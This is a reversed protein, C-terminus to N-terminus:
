GEELRLGAADELGTLVLVRHVPGGTPARVTLTAGGRAQRAALEVLLRVGSSDLYAVAGLDLRLHSDAACERRIGDGVAAAGAADIDGTVVAIPRQPDAVDIAVSATGEAGPPHRRAPAPPVRPHRVMRITTGADGRDIEVEDMVARMIRIGQGRLGPDAAPPRWGGEDAVVVGIERGPGLRMELRMRQSGDDASGHEVANALAEGTALVVDQVGDAGVHAAALWDRVAARAVALNDPTAALVLKLPPPPLDRRAVLLAVDDSSVAGALHAVVRDAMVGAPEAREAAAAAGLRELGVELPEARREVLGDTFLLLSAGPPIEAQAETYGRDTVGLAPGRGDRLIRVGGDGDVVVPHPHGACAYTVRDSRPDIEVCAATSVEAGPIGAAFRSLHELVARPRFGALAYARMASRLQGMVSAAVTGRGVVDGVALFVRGGPMEVAEYWDGGAETHATATQYRAALELGAVDALRAPLLSRQLTTAVDVQAEYLRANELATGVRRGIEEAPLLESLLRGPHENFVLAIAGAARGHTAIPAVFLGSAVAGLEGATGPDIVGAAVLSAFPGGEDDDCGLLAGEDPDVTWPGGRRLVGEVAPETAGIATRMGGDAGPASIVCGDAWRPVLLKRLRDIRGALGLEADLTASVDALLDAHARRRAESEHLGARVLSMAAMRAFARLTNREEPGFARAGQFRLGLVGVIRQDLQLPLAALAGLGPWARPLDAAAPHRLAVEAEDEAFLATGALAAVTPVGEDLASAGAPRALADDFGGVAVTRLTAGDPALLRVGAAAAGFTRIAERVITEAVDQRGGAAALAETAAQLAEVEQRATREADHLRARELAQACQAAFAALFGADVEEGAGTDDRPRSLALVTGDGGLPMAVWPVGGASGHQARGAARAAGVLTDAPSALGPAAGPDLLAADAVGPLARAQRVVETVVEARTLATALREGTANLRRLEEEARHRETVDMAIGIFREPEGDGDRYVRGRASLWRPGRGPHVVRFEEEWTGATRVADAIRSEVRDRDRPDVTALWERPDGGATAPLGVLDAYEGSWRVRDSPLHWDWVGSLGARQALALSEDMGRRTAERQLRANLEFLEVFLTVKSRLIVPNVPKLLYDVAGAAYGDFMHSTASTIATVFIIPIRRTRLRGRILRATEFGDMGPMQVDLLILAFREALLIRLAEEGSEALVIRRGLPALLAEMAVLNARRDDVVLISARDPTPPDAPALDPPDPADVPPVRSPDLGM